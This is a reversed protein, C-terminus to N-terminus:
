RSEKIRQKRILPADKESFEVTFYQVSTVAVKSADLAPKFAIQKSAVACLARDLADVVQSKGMVSKCLTVNGSANILLAAARLAFPQDKNPLKNVVLQLDTSPPASLRNESGMFSISKSITGYTAKGDLDKAPKARARQIQVCGAEDLAPYNTSVVVDCHIVKGTPDITLLVREYGSSDIVKADRPYDIPPISTITPPSPYEASLAPGALMMLIM